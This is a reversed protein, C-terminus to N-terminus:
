DDDGKEGNEEEYATKVAKRLKKGEMEDMDEIEYDHKRAFRRLEKDSMDEFDPAEKEKDDDGGFADDDDDKKKNRKKKDDDDDDDFEAEGKRNPIEDDEDSPMDAVGWHYNIEKYFFEAKESWPPFILLRNKGDKLKYIKVEEDELLEIIKDLNLPKEKLISSPFKSENPSISVTYENKKSSVKKKKIVVVHPSDLLTFDVNTDDSDKEDPMLDALTKLITINSGFVQRGAEKDDMDLITMYFTPKARIENYLKQDAEDDSQKLKLAKKCWSCPKHYVKEQCVVPKRRGYEEARKKTEAYSTKGYGM